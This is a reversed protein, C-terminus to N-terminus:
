FGGKSLEKLPQKKRQEREKEREMRMTGGLRTETWHTLKLIRCLCRPVLLAERLHGPHASPGKMKRRDGLSCAGRGVYAGTCVGVSVLQM